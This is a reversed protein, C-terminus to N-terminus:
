GDQVLGAGGFFMRLFRLLIIAFFLGALTISVEYLAASPGIHHSLLHAAAAVAAKLLLLVTEVPAAISVKDFLVVVGVYRAALSLGGGVVMSLALAFSASACLIRIAARAVM